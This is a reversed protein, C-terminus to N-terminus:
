RKDLTEKKFQDSVIISVPIAVAHIKALERKMSVLSKDVLIAENAAITRHQGNKSWSINLIFNERSTILVRLEEIIRTTNEDYQYRIMNM